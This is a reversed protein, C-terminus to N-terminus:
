DKLITEGKVLWAFGFAFVAVSEAWFLLTVKDVFSEPLMNLGILGAVIVCVIIIVGCTRYVGNRTRKRPTTRPETADTKTFIFLCFVALMVFLLGAFVAHFRSAVMANHTAHAPATPFLAVLIALAGAVSSLVDDLTDYRYCLLFVGIACMSGVFVNRMDTYYYTSISGLPTFHGGSVGYGIALVFPLTVGILGIGRRQFLYSAVIDRVAGQLPPNQTAVM